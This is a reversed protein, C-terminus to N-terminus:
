QTKMGILKWSEETEEDSEELEGESGETTTWESDSGEDDNSEFLFAISGYPSPQDWPWTRLKKRLLDLDDQLAEAAKTWEGCQVQKDIARYWKVLDYRHCADKQSILTALRTRAAAKNRQSIATRAEDLIQIDAQFSRVRIDQYLCVFANADDLSPRRFPGLNWQPALATHVFTDWPTYGGNDRLEPDIGTLPLTLLYRLVGARSYFSAFHLLGRSFHNVAQASAGADMLCRLLDINNQELAYLLPTEGYSERAEIDVHKTALLLKVINDTAEPGAHSSACKHLPTEGFQDHITASAGAALLMSVAAPSGARVAYHMAIGGEDSQQDLRCKADLLCRICDLRDFWAALMLPTWDRWDTQNINAGAAIIQRLAETRGLRIALHIPAYGTLPDAIDIAWPEERLADELGHGRDVAEYVRTRRIDTETDEVWSLVQQLIDTEEKSTPQCGELARHRVQRTIILM